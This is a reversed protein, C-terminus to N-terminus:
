FVAAHVGAEFRRDVVIAAIAGQNLTRVFDGGPAGNADGDLHQL